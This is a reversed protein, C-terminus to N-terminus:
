QVLELVVPRSALTPLVDFIADLGREALWGELAPLQELSSAGLLHVRARLGAFWVRASGFVASGAPEIPPGLQAQAEARLMYNWTRVHECYEIFEDTGPLGGPLTLASM